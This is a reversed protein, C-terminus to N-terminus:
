LEPFANYNHKAKGMIKGMQGDFLKRQVVKKSMTLQVQFKSFTSVTIFNNSVQYFHGFSANNKLFSLKSNDFHM